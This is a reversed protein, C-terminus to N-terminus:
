GLGLTRVLKKRDYGVIVQDNVLITLTVQSKLEEVLELFAERDRSVDKEQFEVRHFSLFEKAKACNACGPQTFVVVHRGAGSEEAM